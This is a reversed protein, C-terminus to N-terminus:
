FRSGFRPIMIDSSDETTLYAHNMLENVSRLVYCPVRLYWQYWVGLPLWLIFFGAQFPPRGSFDEVEPEETAIATVSFRHILSHAWQVAAVMPGHTYICHKARETAAFDEFWIILGQHNRPHPPTTQITTEGSYWDNCSWPEASRFNRPDPCLSPSAPRMLLIHMPYGLWTSFIDSPDVRSSQWSCVMVFGDNFNLQWMPM